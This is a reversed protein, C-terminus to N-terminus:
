STIVAYLHEGVVKAIEEDMNMSHIHFIGEQINMDRVFIDDHQLRRVIEAAGKGVMREDIEVEMMPYAEKDKTMRLKVGAINKVREVTGWLLEKLHEAKKNFGEESLNQLAVLLGIVAEKSVKMGRGIGHEPKGRLREKPILARPPDWTEYPKGAMDLM